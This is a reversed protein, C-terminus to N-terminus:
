SPVAKYGTPQTSTNGGDEGGHGPDIVITMGSLFKEAPHRPVNIPPQATWDDRGDILAMAEELPM